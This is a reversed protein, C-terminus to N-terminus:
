KSEPPLPAAPAAALEDLKRLLIIANQWGTIQLYSISKQAQECVECTEFDGHQHDDGLEANEIHKRIVSIQTLLQRSEARVSENQPAAAPSEGVPLAALKLVARVRRSNGAWSSRVSLLAWRDDNWQAHGV